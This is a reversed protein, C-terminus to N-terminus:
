AAKSVVKPGFVTSCGVVNKTQNMSPNSEETGPPATSKSNMEANSKRQTWWNLINAANYKVETLDGLVTQRILALGLLGTSSHASLGLKANHVSKDFKEKGSPEAVEKALPSGFSASGKGIAKTIRRSPLSSLSSTPALSSTIPSGPIYSLNQARQLLPIPNGNFTQSLSTPTPSSGAPGVTKATICSTVAM